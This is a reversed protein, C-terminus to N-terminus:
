GRNKSILHRRKLTVKLLYIYIHDEIVDLYKLCGCSYLLDIQFGLISYLNQLDYDDSVM